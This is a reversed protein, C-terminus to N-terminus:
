GVCYGDSDEWGNRPVSQYWRERRSLPKLHSDASWVPGLDNGRNEADPRLQLRRGCQCWTVWRMQAFGVVVQLAGLGQRATPQWAQRKLNWLFPHVRKGLSGGM